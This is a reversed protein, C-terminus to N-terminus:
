HGRLDFEEHFWTPAEGWAYVVFTGQEGPGSLFGTAGHFADIERGTASIVEVTMPLPDDQVDYFERLEDLSRDSRILVAGIYQMGNGNGTVKAAQAMSDIREAGDPLPLSVLEKEVRLAALDNVLPLTVVLGVPVAVLAALAVFGAAPLVTRRRPHPARPLYEADADTM